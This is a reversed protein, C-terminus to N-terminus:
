KSPQPVVQMTSHKAKESMIFEISMAELEKRLDAKTQSDSIVGVRRQIHM